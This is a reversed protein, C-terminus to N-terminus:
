EETIKKDFYDNPNVTQGNDILEFHLHNGLDKEVNSTGSKGIVQGQKMVDGNKVNVASLSQYISILNKDHKIEVINGLIKDEKVSTVTGDLIATVDFNDKGGFSIGSNQLYTSEYYILSNEQKSTDAKYDYYDKLVKIEPDTYPRMVVVDTNVVPETNDFITKSVYGYHDDDKFGEQNVFGEILYACGLVLAIVGVYMFPIVSKKLRRQKM